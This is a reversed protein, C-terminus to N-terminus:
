SLNVMMLELEEWRATATDLDTQLRRIEELVQQIRDKNQSYFGAELTQQQLFQLAEELKEIRDPLMNLERQLTYSLKKPASRPRKAVSNQEKHKQTSDAQEFDQLRGSQRLWDEYGGIYEQIKGDGEFALTSTVVNDLFSRDHSVILLTGQFEVLRQELIELTEIDLDNTPEDLVLLNAPKAFLQALLLRNREGGSLSKVPSRVRRASFLFDALYSIVHREKGNVFIFERGQGVNDLLTKEPDLAQRLQDFYAIELHTGHKITGQQPQLEGLLIKLLTSKGAGNNGILGIRDGRLIKCSFKDILPQGTYHYCVNFAEIVKYGSPEAKDITFNASGQVSRRQARIKRLHELARVRGENRTRRAKIGQRIWAEEEALKKDFLRDHRAEELLSKEKELLYRQYDGPWSSLHGRDLEIIRSALVQLFRRDHTIFLVSGKFLRIQQELWEITLIDLHNTPEDLLLVDPSCVLAKALAVRRRWGGSLESMRQQAPLRLASIVTEIKNEIHWGDQADIVQQLYEMRKLTAVDHTSKVIEEYEKRLQQLEFLGEGVVEYVTKNEAEPLVQELQAVRVGPKRWVEGSDPKISGAIVNLLTTKGVGNRGLLCVREGEEVILDAHDLLPQDGYELCLQHLRILPM